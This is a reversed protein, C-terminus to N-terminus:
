SVIKKAQEKLEKNEVILGQNVEKGNSLFKIMSNGNFDRKFCELCRCM